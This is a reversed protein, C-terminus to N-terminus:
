QASIPVLEVHESPYSVSLSAGTAPNKWQLTERTISRLRRMPEESNQAFLLGEDRKHYVVQTSGAPVFSNPLTKAPLPASTATPQASAAATRASGRPPQFNVRVLLLVAAAAALGLGVIWGTRFQIPRIVNHPEELPMEPQNIESEVRGIFSERLPAPRIAKLQAELDSFDNM